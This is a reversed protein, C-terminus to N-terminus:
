RRLLFQLPLHLREAWANEDHAAGEIVRSQWNKATYGKSQVIADAQAQLPAYGADLTETGHDFYLKHGAQQAQPLTERLYDFLAAPIPNQDTAVSGPWHTSLCGAAGFVQPYESLAYLSILAGMSSGVIVTNAPDTLVSYHNDIYPKLETVLFKLYNDGSLPQSFVPQQNQRKLQLMAQQEAPALRRFAKKPFYESHRGAGSNFVAVVIFPKTKGEAILRSAVEDVRWEQKNWSDTGDFLMQGDQMYVVAYRSNSNYGEPLWIDVHRPPIYGSSFHYLREIKGSSVKPLRAFASCCFVLLLLAIFKVTVNQWLTLLASLKASRYSVTPQIQM